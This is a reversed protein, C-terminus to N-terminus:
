DLKAGCNSCFKDKPSVKKGCQSCYKRRVDETRVQKRSNPLILINETQFPYYEFDIDCTEFEQNSRGGKEVRGTELSLNHDVAKNAQKDISKKSLSRTASSATITSAASDLNLDGSATLHYSNDGADGTTVSSSYYCTSVDNCLKTKSSCITNGYGNLYDNGSYTFVCPQFSIQEREHFFEIKVKGNQSTAYRMENTDEIQYTSFLFKSNENVFRDLWFSQGPRLVLMNGISKNNVYIKIGLHNQFPNKLYIQFETGDNLYVTRDSESSKYEKILNKSIAIKALADKAIVNSM